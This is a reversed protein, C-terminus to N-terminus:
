DYHRLRPWLAAWSARPGTCVGLQLDMWGNQVQYPAHYITLVRCRAFHPRLWGLSDVTLVVRDSADGPGWMWFANHGSLVPPLRYGSGLVDLAAAEGYNGAFISTPAQGRRTLATDQAAVASTLQPWGIEDTIIGNQQLSPPLDHVDALPLVPLVQPLTFAISVLPAAVAIGRRWQPRRARGIWREAAVSGAALVVPATGQSYYQKGPAWAMVLVVIFTVTIALFRLERTRWLVVFGAIVLPIVLVGVFDLQALVATLYDFQNSNQQQLASAMALQPWGHTAQWILNPAWLLAAVGAGLWPWRTRLEGARGCRSAEGRGGRWALSSGLIGAAVGIVLLVMVNNDELGVGAAVGAGLWWRPRDRLVATAVALLVVAWALMELATTGDLESYAVVLPASATILAALVRGLRGAGLLAALRATIVVVAGGALAPVIRVTVPSVGAVSSVARTVLPTLPPQDVYGFALHRGAVIFYLEDQMFGYRDSVALELCVFAAAIVWVLAPVRDSTVAPARTQQLAEPAAM